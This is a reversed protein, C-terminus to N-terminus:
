PGDGSIIPSALDINSNIYTRAKTLEDEVEQKKIAEEIFKRRITDARKIALKEKTQQKKKDIKLRELRSSPHKIM